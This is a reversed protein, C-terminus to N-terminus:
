LEGELYLRYVSCHLLSSSAFSGAGSLPLDKFLPRRAQQGRDTAKPMEIWEGRGLMEAGHGESGGRGVM